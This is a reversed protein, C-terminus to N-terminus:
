TSTGKMDLLLCKTYTDFLRNFWGKAYIDDISDLLAYHTARKVTFKVLDRGSEDLWLRTRKVGVNVAADFVALALAPRLKHCGCPLWYERKYIDAAQERTLNRIGDRGLKPHARLSVGWKTLGGPDRPDDTIKNGGEWKLVHDLAQAFFDIM